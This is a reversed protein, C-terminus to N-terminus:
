GWLIFYPYSIGSSDNAVFLLEVGSPFRQVDRVGPQLIRQAQHSLIHYLIIQNQKTYSIMSSDPSWDLTLSELPLGWRRAIGYLTDGSQVTYFYQM